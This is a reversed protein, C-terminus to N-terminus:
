KVGKYKKLNEKMLLLLENHKIKLGNSTINIPSGYGNLNSSMIKRKIANTQKSIYTEPHKLIIVVFSQKSFLSVQIIREKIDSIDNWLILGVSMAGANDTIGQADIVIGPRKDFLKKTFFYIGFLGMLMSGYAVINKIVDNNLFANSIDPKSIAIWLGIISFVISALLLKTLKVKSLPIEISDTQNM